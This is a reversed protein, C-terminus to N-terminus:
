ICVENQYEVMYGNVVKYCPKNQYIDNDTVSRFYTNEGIHQLLFKIGNRDPDGIFWIGSGDNTCNGFWVKYRRDSACKKYHNNINDWTINGDNIAKDIAIVADIILQMKM